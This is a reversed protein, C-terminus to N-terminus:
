NLGSLFRDHSQFVRATYDRCCFLFRLIDTL